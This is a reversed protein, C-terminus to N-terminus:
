GKDQQQGSPRASGVFVLSLLHLDGAQLPLLVALPSGCCPQPEDKVGVPM